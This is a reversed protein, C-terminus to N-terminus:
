VKLRGIVYGGPGAAMAAQGPRLDFLEALLAPPMDDGAGTRDFPSTTRIELGAEAAIQVLDTGANVRQVIAEARAEAAEDRKAARWAALVEARIAELPRLMAPTISDVRVIFFGGDGTETLRSEEGAATEFAIALLEEMEPLDQAPEGGPTQGRADVASVHVPRLNLYAAAETLTAGGALTDELANALEYLADIALNRQEDAELSARAEELGQLRAEEIAEVRVVHWGFPSRIPENVAGQPLAFVAEALEPSHGALEGRELWGIQQPDQGTIERAVAVLDRGQRLMDYARRASDEDALLIQVVERREPIDFEDLRVEYLETLREESVRIEGALDDPKLSVVTLARYEPAMFRDANDRHFAGLTAEDPEDIGGVSDTAVTVVDAVRQERRHRYLADVLRDPAIGGATIASILQGRALDRRLLAVYAEETLGAQFLFQEFLSRDFRGSEDHFAPSAFIIARVLDDGIAIGARAAGLDFLTRRVMQALVQDVFGLQRALESDIQGGFQRIQRQFDRSFDVTSIRVDGVEAVVIARGGGRFIDGIGWIAFSLILLGFLIGFLWSKTQKRISQLM